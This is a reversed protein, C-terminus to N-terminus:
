SLGPDRSGDAAARPEAEPAAAPSKAMEEEAQGQPNGDRAKFRPYALLLCVIYMSPFFVASVSLFLPDLTGRQMWVLGLAVGGGGLFCGLLRLAYDPFSKAGLPMPKPAAAAQVEFAPAVVVDKPYEPDIQLAVQKSQQALRAVDHTTLFRNEIETGGFEYVVHLTACDRHFLVRSARAEVPVYLHRRTAQRYARRGFYQAAWVFFVVTGVIVAVSALLVLIAVVLFGDM